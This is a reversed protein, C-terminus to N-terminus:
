QVVAAAVPIVEQIELEHASLAITVSHPSPYPNESAANRLNPFNFAAPAIKRLAIQAGIEAESLGSTSFRNLDLPGATEFLCEAVYFSVSEVQDLFAGIAQVELSDGAPGPFM